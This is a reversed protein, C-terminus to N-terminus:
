RRLWRSKKSQRMKEIEDLAQQWKTFMLSGLVRAQIELLKRYSLMAGEIEDEEHDRELDRRKSVKLLRFLIEEKQSRIEDKDSNVYSLM